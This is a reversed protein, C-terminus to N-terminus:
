ELEASGTVTVTVTLDVVEEAPVVPVVFILTQGATVEIGETKLDVIDTNTEDLMYPVADVNTTLVGDATATYSFWMETSLKQLLASAVVSGDEVVAPNMMDAGAPMEAITLVATVDAETSNTLVVESLGRM